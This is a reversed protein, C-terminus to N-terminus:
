NHLSHLKDCSPTNINQAKYYLDRDGFNRAKMLMTEKYNRERYCSHKLNNLYEEEVSAELRGVSGQYESHFNDKVYYPIKLLNTKRAVSFKQSPTLSYIPDSIFFSSMMSLGILAIIPLLNIFAAYGSQAEQHRQQYQESRHFRRQRMYVHQTPINGGFFMNFLEEATFETEFGRSYAYEYQRAGARRTTHQHQDQNGYLDYSKRKEADTLIAVANGIAKFAEVSGPAKNKDPHLQLALKKYAKKIEADTAEKTIGLVEYYDKCKKIRKVAELQEPTYDAESASEAKAAGATARQRVGEDSTNGSGSRKTYAGCKIKELLEEARKTPHLNISKNLLKEAKEIKGESLYSVAKEVCDEAAEKNM